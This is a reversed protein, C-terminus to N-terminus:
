AWLFEPLFMEVSTLCRASAEKQIEVGKSGLNIVQQHAVAAGCCRGTVGRNQQAESVAKGKLHEQLQRTKNHTPLSSDHTDQQSCRRRRQLLWLPKLIHVRPM